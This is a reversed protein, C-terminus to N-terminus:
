RVAFDASTVSKIRASPSKGAFPISCHLGENIGKLKLGGFGVGGSQEFIELAMWAGAGKQGFRLPFRDRLKDAGREPLSMLALLAVAGGVVDTEAEAVFLPDMLRAVEPQDTPVAGRAIKEADIRHLLRRM